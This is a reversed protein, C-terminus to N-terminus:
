PAANLPVSAVHGDLYVRLRSSGWVPTEPLRTFWGSTTISASAMGPHDRSVRQDLNTLAWVRAPGGFQDIQSLKLGPIADSSDTSYRGFVRGGAVGSLTYNQVYHPYLTSIEPQHRLFGPCVLARVTEAEGAPLSDRRRHGLYPGLAATLETDGTNRYYLPHIGLSAPGPLTQRHDQAFSLIALGVGRLDATATAKLATQRVRGVTVVLLAALLGIIAIVTLLEILTFGPRAPFFARTNM